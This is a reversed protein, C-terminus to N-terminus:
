ISYVSNKNTTGGSTQPCLQPRPPLFGVAKKECRDRLLKLDELPLDKVLLEVASPTLEPVAAATFRRVEQALVARYAVGDAASKKLAEYEQRIANLEEDSLPENQEFFKELHEMNNKEKRIEYKKTVGAARQSPVAVFSWEYADYPEDLCFSCLKGKYTQGRVHCCGEHVTKGCVSCVKKRVACGVSVEKRIGSDLSLIVAENQPSRPMYAKGVLRCYPRNDQTMKNQIYETHCSFLRATQNESKAEHDLIGTKGVFLEAMKQLANDSFYEFDRDIDNDCLVVSFVYLEEATMPRRTYTNILSLEEDNITDTKM